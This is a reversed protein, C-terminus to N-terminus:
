LSDAFREIMMQLIRHNYEKTNKSYNEYERQTFNGIIMGMLIGKLLPQQTFIRIREAFVSRKDKYALLSDFNPQNKLVNLLLNHQLKLIPRLTTNQFNEIELTADTVELFLEPRLALLAEEDRSDNYKMMM